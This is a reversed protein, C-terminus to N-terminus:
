CDLTNCKQSARNHLIDESRCLGQSGNAALHIADSCLIVKHAIPKAIEHLVLGPKKTLPHVARASREHLGSPHWCGMAIHTTHKISIRVSDIRVSEKVCVCECVHMFKNHRPCANNGQLLNQMTTIHPTCGHGNQTLHCFECAHTDSSGFQAASHLM